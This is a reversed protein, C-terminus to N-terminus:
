NSIYKKNKGLSSLFDIASKKVSEENSLTNLLSEYFSIRTDIEKIRGKTDESPYYLDLKEYIKRGRILLNIKERFYDHIEINYDDLIKQMKRILLLNDIGTITDKNQELMIPCFDASENASDEIPKNLLEELQQLTIVKNGTSMKVINGTSINGQNIVDKNGTSINGKNGTLINQQNIIDENQKNNIYYIKPKQVTDTYTSKLFTNIINFFYNYHINNNFKAYKQLILLEIFADWTKNYYDGRKCQSFNNIFFKHKKVKIKIDSKYEYVIIPDNMDYWPLLSIKNTNINDTYNALYDIIIDQNKIIKRINFYFNNSSHKKFTKFKLEPFIIKLFKCYRKNDIIIIKDVLKKYKKLIHYIITIIIGREIWVINVIKCENYNIIM